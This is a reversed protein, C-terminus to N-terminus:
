EPQLLFRILLYLLQGIFVSFVFVQPAVDLSLALSTSGSLLFCMETWDLGELPESMGDQLKSNDGKTYTKVQNFTCHNSTLSVNSDTCVSDEKPLGKSDDTSFTDDKQHISSDDKPLIKRNANEDKIFTLPRTTFCSLDSHGKSRVLNKNEFVLNPIGGKLSEPLDNNYRVNDGYYGESEPQSMTDAESDFDTDADNLSDDSLFVDDEDADDNLSDSINDFDPFSFWWLYNFYCM